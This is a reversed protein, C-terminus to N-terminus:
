QKKTYILTLDKTEIVQSFDENYVTIADKFVRVLNQNQILFESGDDLKLKNDVQKYSSAFGLGGNACQVNFKYVSNIKSVKVTPSFTNVAGITKNVKVSLVEQNDCTAEDILNQSTVKDNNVDMQVGISWSSLVWDGLIPNADDNCSFGTFLMFLFVFSLINKKM